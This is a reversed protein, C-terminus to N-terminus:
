TNYISYISLYACNIQIWNLIKVNSVAMEVLLKKKYDAKRNFIRLMLRGLGSRAAYFRAIFLQNLWFDHGM